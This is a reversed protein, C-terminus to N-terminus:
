HQTTRTLQALEGPLLPRTEGPPLEGLRLPGFGIRKLRLVHHGIARCLQRVERKKGETIRFELLVDGGKNQRVIRVRAPQYHEGQHYMGKAIPELERELLPGDVWALYSRVIRYRPHTLREILAGDDSLLLLGESDADLRGVYKLAQLRPPLLDYITPRGQPDGNSCLYGAPKHFLLYSFRRPPRVAAGDVTVRDSGPDVAAGLERQVAGNVAVRGAAILLDAKRRSAAGCLSLYKNLRIPESM